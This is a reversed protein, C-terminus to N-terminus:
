KVKVTKTATSAKAGKGTAKFKAKIKGKKAFKVKVKVTKSKGAALTGASAKGSVGKGSATVKANSISSKGTNKITVKYTTKKGKKAKAPGKVKPKGFTGGANGPGASECATKSEPANIISDPSTPDGATNRTGLTFTANTLWEGTSCKAVVYTKDVGRRNAEPANNGPINLNFEGTGSDFTLVPIQVDLVGNDLAGEMYVGAKTQASYGYIKLVPQGQANKGGNFIILVPDKLNPGTPGNNQALYLQATGNGIVADPCRAIVTDPPVSLNVPPPGVMDDGCVPTKPDPNFAMDQPFTTRVRKMPLVKPNAPFPATIEVGVRWNVPVAEKTFLKGGQPTMQLEATASEGSASASGTLSLSMAAVGVIGALVACLRKM